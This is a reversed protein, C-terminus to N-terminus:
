IQGPQHDDNQRSPNQRADTKSFVWIQISHGLSAGPERVRKDRRESQEGLRALM